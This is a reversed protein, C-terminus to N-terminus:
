IWDGLRNWQFDTEAVFFRNTGGNFGFVDFTDFNNALIFYSDGELSASPGSGFFTDDTQSDFLEVVDNGTSADIIVRDFGAATNSFGSGSLASSAQFARLSDNGASDVMRAFDNGNVAVARVSSFGRAENYFTDNRLFALEPSAFFNDDGDSDRLTAVDNGGSSTARVFDFGLALRAFGDGNLSAVTPSAFFTDDGQSDSLLATDRGLTDIAVVTEFESVTNQFGAGNLFSTTPTGYFFDDGDTGTLFARDQGGRGNSRVLPFGVAVAETTETTLRAFLNSSAVLTDDGSSGVLRVEDSGASSLSRVVSYNLANVSGGQDFLVVSIEPQSLFLDDGASDRLIATDDGGGSVGTASLFGTANLVFGEGVLRATESNAFFSETAASGTLRADDRRDSSTAAVLDFGNVIVNVTPTTFRSVTPTGVFSDDTEANGSLRAVDNGETAEILFSSFGDATVEPLGDAIMSAGTGRFSFVDDLVSDLFRVSTNDELQGQVDIQNVNNWQITQGGSEFRDYGVRTDADTTFNIQNAGAGGDFSLEVATNFVLPADLGAAAVSTTQGSVTVAWVDDGDTGQIAVPGGGLDLTEVSDTDISFRNDDVLFDGGQLITIPAAATNVLVTDAGGSGSFVLGGPSLLNEVVSVGNTIIEAGDDVINVGFTDDGETGLITVTRLALVTEISQPDIVFLDGIQFDGDTTVSVETASLILFEEGALGDLVLRDLGVLNEAFSVQNISIDTSGDVVIVEIVDNGDTGQVTVLSGGLDVTSVGDAAVFLDGIQFGGETITVPVNGTNLLLTDSGGLGNFAVNDLGALNTTVDVGNITIEADDGVVNVAFTDDGDTGPLTIPSDGLDISEVNEASITLLDGVQFAGDVVSVALGGTDLTLSDTGGFGNFALEGDDNLNLTRVAGNVSIETVGGSVTVVFTDDDDVSGTASRPVITGTNTLMSQDFPGPPGDNILAVATWFEEATNGPIFHTSGDALVINTGEAASTGTGIGDTPNAPDFVLDVPRTWEVARDDEAQVFLVTNSAGDAIQGFSTGSNNNGLPFITREGTAPDITSTIAQYVTKGNEVSVTKFISPMLPLLALNNPSDWPEDLNFRDYLEQEGIFPLLEVRWSLLPQGGQPQSYIAHQPFDQTASEFNLAGLALERLDNQVEFRNFQRPANNDRLVKFDVAIDVFDAPSLIKRLVDDSITSNFFEISGDILAVHFGSSLASGIDASLTNPDFDFDGPRTWEIAQENGTQLVTAVNRNDGFFFSRRVDDTNPFFTNEGHAGQFVTKGTEVGETAFVSPILPLLSLNHPSDWPEDLNFQHYLNAEGIFPLISVRWSLLPVSPDQDSYITSPFGQNFSENFILASNIDQLQQETTQTELLNTFSYDVVEGGNITAWADLNAATTPQFNVATFSFGALAANFTGDGILGGLGNSPNASDYNLDVPRTWQVAQSADAEVITITNEGDVLDGFNVSGSRGSDFFTGDGDLGLYVTLGSAVDPHGFINPMNDLLQINNPSDWPEDLNFQNYLDQHGLFPLLSVRWSLLPTGDEARIAQEPFEMFSSEYNSLALSLDPLTTNPRLPNPDPVFLSNDIPVDDNINVFNTFSVPDIQDTLIYEQGQTDVASFGEASANGLGAFPDLENFYWDVPETWIVSQSADVEVLALSLPNSLDQPANNLPFITDEGAVALYPTRNGSEFHNSRFIDPMQDALALNHPSDWAEDLRFQDYLNQFGLHPLIHVRWSLLPTGADDFNALTPLHGVASEYGLAGFWIQSIKIDEVLEPRTQDDPLDFPQFQTGLVQFENADFQGGFQNAVVVVDNDAALPFLNRFVEDGDFDVRAVAADTVRAEFDIWQTDNNYQFRNGEQRVAIFHDANAAPIDGFREHVSQESYLIFGTGTADESVAVGSNLDGVLITALMKRPEFAEYKIGSNNSRKRARKPRIM